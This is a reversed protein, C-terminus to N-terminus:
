DEGADHLLVDAVTDDERIDMALCHCAMYLPHYIYPIDSNKRTQTRHAEEAFDLAKLTETMRCSKATTKVFTKMHEWQYLTDKTGSLYPRNEALMSVSVDLIGALQILHETEPLYENREWSSVAQFSVGLKEATEEQTLHKQIRYHRINEGINM